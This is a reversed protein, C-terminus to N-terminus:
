KKGASPNEPSTKWNGAAVKFAERHTLNPQAAKVKALETKMFQNYPTLPRSGKAASAKKTTDKAKAEKPM